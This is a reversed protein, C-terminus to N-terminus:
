STTRLRRGGSCARNPATTPRTTASATEMPRLCTAFRTVRRFRLASSILRPSRDLGRAVSRTLKRPRSSTSSSVVAMPLMCSFRRSSTPCMWPVLRETASLASSICSDEALTLAEASLMSRLMARMESPASCWSWSTSRAWSSMWFIATDMWDLACVAVEAASVAVAVLLAACAPPAAAWSAASFILFTKASISAALSVTKAKPSFVCSIVLITTAMVPTACCVFRRAKFAAMSAARAPSYPRPKATTASSTRLSASLAPDAPEGVLDALAALV